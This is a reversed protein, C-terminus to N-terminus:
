GIRLCLFRFKEAPIKGHHTCSLVLSYLKRNRAAVIMRYLSNIWETLLHGEHSKRNSLPLLRQIKGAYDTLSIDYRCPCSRSKWRPLAPTHALFSERCLLLAWLVNQPPLCDCGDASRNGFDLDQRIGGAAGVDAAWLSSKEFGAFHLFARYVSVRRNGLVAGTRCITQRQVGDYLQLIGRRFYVRPVASRAAWLAPARRICHWRRRICRTHPLPWM